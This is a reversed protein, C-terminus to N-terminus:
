STMEWTIVPLEVELGQSEFETAPRLLSTCSNSDGLPANFWQAANLQKAREFHFQNDIGLKLLNRAYRSALLGFKKEPLGEYRNRLYERAANLDQTLYICFGQSRLAKAEISLEQLSVERSGVVGAVWYHLKSALHSRISTDLNLLDSGISNVGLSLFESAVKVSGYTEWISSRKTRVISDIWNGIGAEEGSHIEQGEGVLGVIVGWGETREMIDLLAEPESM